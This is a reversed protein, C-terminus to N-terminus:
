VKTALHPTTKLRKTQAKPRRPQRRPTAQKASYEYPRPTIPGLNLRSAAAKIAEDTVYPAATMKGPLTFFHGPKPEHLSADVSLHPNFKSVPICPKLCATAIIKDATMKKIAPFLEYTAALMRKIEAPDVEYDDSDAPVEDHSRNIASLNGHNVIIPSSYDIDIMTYRSLQPTFILHSKFCQVGLKNGTLKRYCNDIDAGTAYFFLPAHLQYNGQLSNIKVAYDGAHEYDAETLILAGKNKIETYLKMLLLRNNLRSDSVEFFYSVAGRNIEPELAFYQDATLEKFPVDCETWRQRAYDARVADNTVAYSSNWPKDFCDPAYTKFFNHGYQLRQATEKGQVPNVASLSHTTGQHIWGHNKSSAGKAITDQKEVLAVAQGLDLLRKALLLGQIGSGFIVANYERVIYNSM